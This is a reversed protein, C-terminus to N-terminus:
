WLLVSYIENCIREVISRVQYHIHALLSLISYRIMFSYSDYAPCKDISNVEFHTTHSEHCRSFDCLVHTTKLLFGNLLECWTTTLTHLHYCCHIDCSPYIMKKNFLREVVWRVKFHIHTTQSWMLFWMLSLYTQSPIREVIWNM